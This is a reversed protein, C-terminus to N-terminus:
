EKELAELEAELAAMREMMAQIALTTLGAPDIVSIHKDSNGLGFAAYFDQAM